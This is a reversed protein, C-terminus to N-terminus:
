APRRRVRSAVAAFGLGFVLAAGPEPVASALASSSCVDNSPSTFGISSACVLQFLTQNVGHDRLPGVGFFGDIGPVNFVRSRSDGVWVLDRRGFRASGASFVSCRGPTAFSCSGIGGGGPITTEGTISLNPFWVGRAPLQLNRPIGSYRRVDLPAAESASAHFGALVLAAAVALISTRAM